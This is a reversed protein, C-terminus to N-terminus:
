LLSSLLPDVWGATLFMGRQSGTGLHSGVVGQGGRSPSSYVTCKTFVKLYVEGRFETKFHGCQDLIQKTASSIHIM